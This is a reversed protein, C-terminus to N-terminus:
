CIVPAMLSSHQYESYVSSAVFCYQFRIWTILWSESKAVNLEHCFDNGSIYIASFIMKTFKRYNVFGKNKRNLWPEVCKLFVQLFISM